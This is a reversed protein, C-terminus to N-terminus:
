RCPRRRLFIRLVPGDSASGRTSRYDAYRRTSLGGWCSSSDSEEPLSLSNARIGRRAASMMYSSSSSLSSSFAGSSEGFSRDTYLVEPGTVKVSIGKTHCREGVGLETFLNMIVLPGFRCAKELDLIGESRSSLCCV